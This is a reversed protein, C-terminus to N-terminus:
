VESTDCADESFGPFPTLTEDETQILLLHLEVLGKNERLASVLQLRTSYGGVPQQQQQKLLLPPFCWVATERLGNALISYDIVIM